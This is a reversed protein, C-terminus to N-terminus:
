FELSSLLNKFETESIKNLKDILIESMSKLEFEEDTLEAKMEKLTKILDKKSGSQYLMILMKEDYNFEMM